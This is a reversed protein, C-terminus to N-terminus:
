NASAPAPAPAPAPVPAPRLASDAATNVPATVPLRPLLPAIKPTAALKQPEVPKIATAAGVPKPTGTAALKAKEAPSLAQYTEWKAKKEEGTLEKSLEKTKAFNLRAAARDQPSMRVWEVMRSHMTSQDAPSLKQYNKSVEVWKRKQSESITNWSSELPKLAQQQMGTLETWAPKTAAPVAAPKANAATSAKGNAAKPAASSSAPLASPAAPTQALVFLSLSALLLAALVTKM